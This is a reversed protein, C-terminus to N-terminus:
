SCSSRKLRSIFIRGQSTVQDKEVCTLCIWGYMIDPICANAINKFLGEQRSLEKKYETLVRKTVLLWNGERGLSFFIYVLDAIENM